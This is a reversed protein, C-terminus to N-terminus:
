AVPPLLFSLDHRLFLGWYHDIGTHSRHFGTPRARAGEGFLLLDVPHHDVAVAERQTSDAEPTPVAAPRPLCESIMQRGSQAPPTPDCSSHRPPRPCLARKRGALADRARQRGSPPHSTGPPSPLTAHRTATYGHTREAATLIGRQPHTEVTLLKWDATVAPRVPQTTSLTVRGLHTQHHRSAPSPTPHLPRPAPPPFSPPPGTRCAPHNSSLRTDTFLLAETHAQSPCDGWAHPLCAYKELVDNTTSDRM